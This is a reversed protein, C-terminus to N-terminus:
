EQGTMTATGLAQMARAAFQCDREFGIFSCGCGRAAQGTSGTGAFPDLVTGGPPCYTRILFQLLPVPKECPHTKKIGAVSDYYLVNTPYRSGDPSSYPVRKVDKHYIGNSISRGEDRYEVSHGYSKQPCYYARAGKIGFVLIEEFASMPAHKCNLHGTAQNKVWIYKHKFRGPATMIVSHANRWPAFFIVGGGPKITRDIHAWLATYDPPTDWEKTTIGYPPDTLILDISHDPLQEFLQMCDGQVLTAQM